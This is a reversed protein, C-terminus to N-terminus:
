WNCLVFIVKEPPQESSGKSLETRDKGGSAKGQPEERAATVKLKKATKERDCPKKKRKPAKLDYSLYSEFSMAPKGCEDESPQGDNASGCGMKTKKGKRGEAHLKKVKCNQGKKGDPLEETKKPELPTEKERSSKKDKLSSKTEQCNTVEHMGRRCNGKSKSDGNPCVTSPQSSTPSSVNSKDKNPSNKQHLHSSGGRSEPRLPVSSRKHSSVPKCETDPSTSESKKGDFRKNESVEPQDKHCEDEGGSQEPVPSLMVSILM